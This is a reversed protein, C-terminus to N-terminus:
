FRVAKGSAMGGDGRRVQVLYIGAPWRSADFIRAGGLLDAQLVPRGQLDYVALWRLDAGEEPVLQLQHDGSFWVRFGPGYVSAALGTTWTQASAVNSFPSSGGANFASVRYYYLTADNLGSDTHDTVDPGTEHILVFDTGNLSREIRYGSEFASNDSWSLLISTVGGAVASLGTPAAPALGQNGCNELLFRNFNVWNNQSFM